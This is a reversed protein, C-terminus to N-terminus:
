FRIRDEPFSVVLTHLHNHENVHRRLVHMLMDATLPISIGKDALKEKAKALLGEEDELWGKM